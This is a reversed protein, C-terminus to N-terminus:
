AVDRLAADDETAIAHHAHAFFVADCFGGGESTIAALWRRLTAADSIDGHEVAQEIGSSYSFAGVPYAPSLWAMLRYLASKEREGSAPLPDPHPPSEVRVAQPFAGEGAGGESRKPPDVEGRLRPSTVSHAAGDARKRGAMTM